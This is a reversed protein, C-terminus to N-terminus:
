GELALDLLTVGFLDLLRGLHCLPLGVIATYDEGEMSEFLTAGMSEIRYSGACDVPGDAAVYRALRERDLARMRMRHVAVAVESKGSAPEHVCIGTLLRHERGALRMLQDVAREATGPKGLIAGDLEVVQDSGIILAEPHAESLSEAKRISLLRVLEEPEISPDEVVEDCLPAVSAVGSLGVEDLLARRHRSTSALLVRTNSM